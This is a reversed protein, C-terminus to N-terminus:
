RTASKATKAHQSYDLADPRAFFEEDDDPDIADCVPTTVLGHWLRRLGRPLFIRLTM